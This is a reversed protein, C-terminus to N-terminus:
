NTSAPRATKAKNLESLRRELARTGPAASLGKEAWERASDLEGLAKYYDTLAAYPPWHNPKLEIARYLDNLGQPGNELRLENEGKRTLIEPRLAFDHPANRLVYDFEIVSQRLERDRVQKSTSSYLAWNTHTLGWCYHHLHLFNNPGLLHKWREMQPPDDGSPVNQRYYETYKCYPPLMAVVRPDYHGQTRDFQVQGVANAAALITPLAIARALRAPCLRSSTSKLNPAM